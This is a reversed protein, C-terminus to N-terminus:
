RSFLGMLREAVDAALDPNKKIRNLDEWLDPPLLRPDYEIVISSSFVKVRTSLLGPIRRVLDQPDLDLPSKRLSYKLRVRGPTHSTIETYLALRIIDRVLNALNDTEPM